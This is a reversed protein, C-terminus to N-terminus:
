RLIKKIMAEAVKKALKEATRKTPLIKRKPNGIGEEHSRAKKDQTGVTVSKRSLGRSVVFSQSLRGTDRLIRIRGGSRKGRRRARKTSEALPKWKKETGEDRFNKNIWALGSQGVLDLLIDNDFVRGLNEIKRLARANDITIRNAM